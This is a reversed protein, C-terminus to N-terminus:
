DPCSRGQVPLELSASSPNAGDVWLYIEVAAADCKNCSAGCSKGAMRRAVKGKRIWQELMGRVADAEADCHLAIDELTAQRREMLYRKIDALIM